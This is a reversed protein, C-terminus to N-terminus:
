TGAAPQTLKGARNLVELYIVRLLTGNADHHCVGMRNDPHGDDAVLAAHRFTALVARGIGNGVFVPYDLDVRFFTDGAM